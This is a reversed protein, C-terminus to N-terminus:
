NDVRIGEVIVNIRNVQLGLIEELKYKITNILTNAIASINTGLEVIIHLDIDLGFEDSYLKVGKTLSEKKLLQVFGDKLDKAAMGVIGYCEMAITGAIKAVVENDIFINGLENKINPLCLVEM